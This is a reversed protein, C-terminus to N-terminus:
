LLGRRQAMKHLLRQIMKPHLGTKEAIEAHNHGQRLMELMLRYPDPQGDVLQEWHEKAIAVQSPTPARHPPDLSPQEEDRGDGQLSRERNLNYKQNLLRRRCEDAVKNQAMRALFAVLSNPDSFTNNELSTRFFSTWVDQLFDISDYQSRLRQPLGRRVVRRIHGSYLNYLERAADPCGARVREMLALFEDQQPGSM